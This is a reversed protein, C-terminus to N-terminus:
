EEIESSKLEIYYLKRIALTDTNQLNTIQLTRVISKQQILMM